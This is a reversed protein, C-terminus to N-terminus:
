PATIGTHAILEFDSNIALSGGGNPDTYTYEASPLRCELVYQEDRNTGGEEVSFTTGVLRCSAAVFVFGYDATTAGIVTDSLAEAVFVVPDGNLLATELTLDVFRRSVAINVTKFGAKFTGVPQSGGPVYRTEATEQSGTITIGGDMPLEVGGVLFRCNVEPIVVETSFSPTWRDFRQSVAWVDAPPFGLIQKATQSINATQIVSGGAGYLVTVTALYVNGAPTDPAVASAAVAKTGKTVVPVTTSAGLSIVAKYAEGAILAASAGDNQNLTSLQPGTMTLLTGARYWSANGTSVTDDPSGAASVVGGSVLYTTSAQPFYAEIWNRRTGLKLDTNGYYLRTWTNFTITQSASESGSTGVRVTVTVTTATQSVITLYIVKDASDFNGSWFHRLIPAVIGTGTVTPEGHFDVKGAALPFSLKVNERSKISLSFGGAIADVIRVAYGKDDEGQITLKGLEQTGGARTRWDDSMRIMYHAGSVQTAKYGQFYQLFAKLQAPDNANLDGMNLPGVGAVNVKGNLPAGRVSGSTLAAREVVDLGLKIPSGFHYFDDLDATAAPVGDASQRGLRRISRVPDGAGSGWFPTSM